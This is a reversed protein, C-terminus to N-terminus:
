AAAQLAVAMPVVMTSGPCPASSGGGGLGKDVKRHGGDCLQRPSSLWLDPIGGLGERQRAVAGLSWRACVLDPCLWGWV